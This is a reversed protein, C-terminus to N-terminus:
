KKWGKRKKDRLSEGKSSRCRKWSGLRGKRIVYPVSGTLMRMKKLRKYLFCIQTKATTGNSAIRKTEWGM